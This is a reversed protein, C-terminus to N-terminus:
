VRGKKWGSPINEKKVLKNETGNTVWQKGYSPNNRGTVKGLRSKRIKEKTEESHKRNKFPNGNVSQWVKASMSLKKSYETRYEADTEWLMKKIDNGKKRMEILVSNSHKHYLKNKNIYDFGGYGGLKVNYTDNRAVFEEDVIESEKQWMDLETVCEFLIEKNFNEKGHKEVSRKLLLGSGFYEDNKNDTKHAGV